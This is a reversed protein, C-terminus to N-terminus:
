GTSLAKGEEGLEVVPLVDQLGVLELTEADRRAVRALLLRGGAAKAQQAFHVLTGVGVCSLYTTRSLDLVLRTQGDEILQAIEEMAGRLSAGSLPEGIDLVLYGNLAASKAPWTRLSLM